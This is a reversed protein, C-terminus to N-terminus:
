ASTLAAITLLALTITYVGVLGWGVQRLDRASIRKIGLVLGAAAGPLAAVVAWPSVRVFVLAAAVAVITWGSLVVVITRELNRDMRGRLSGPAMSAPAEDGVARREHPRLIARVALNGVIFTVAWALAASGVIPLATVGGSLGMPLVMATLALGAILEGALTKETGGLVRPVLLVALVVPLFVWLSAEQPALGVAVLGCTFAVVALVIARRRARSGHDRRAREGRHGLVVLLPEHALFAAVTAVGFTLAAPAARSMVLGTAIPFAMEAYVGHEKPWLSRPQIKREDEGSM